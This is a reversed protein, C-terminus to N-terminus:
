SLCHYLERREKGKTKKSNKAISEIQQSMLDVFLNMENTSSRDEKSRRRKLLECQFMSRIRDDRHLHMRCKIVNKGWIKEDMSHRSSFDVCELVFFFIFRIKLIFRNTKFHTSHFISSSSFLSFVFFLNENTLSWRIKGMKRWQLTFCLDIISISTSNTEERTRNSLNLICLYSRNWENEDFIKSRNSRRIKKMKENWKLKFDYRLIRRRTWHWWVFSTIM